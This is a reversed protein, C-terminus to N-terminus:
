KREACDKNHEYSPDYRGLVYDPRRQDAQVNVSIIRWGVNLQQQLEDTCCDEMLKLRNIQAILGGGIHVNCKQNFTVKSINESVREITELKDEIIRLVESLKSIVLTEDVVKKSVKVTRIVNYPWVWKENWLEMDVVITDPFVFQPCPLNENWEICITNREEISLSKFWENAKDDTAEEVKTHSKYIKLRVESDLDYIGFETKYKINPIFEKLVEYREVPLTKNYSESIKVEIFM